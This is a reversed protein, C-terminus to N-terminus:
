SRFSIEDFGHKKLKMLDVEMERKKQEEQFSIFSYDVKEKEKKKKKDDLNKLKTKEKMLRIYERDKNSEFEKTYGAVVAKDYREPYISVYRDKTTALEGTRRNRYGIAYDYSFFTVPGTNSDKPIIRIIGEDDITYKNDPTWYGQSLKLEEIFFKQQYDPVLTCFYAFAENYSKGVYKRLVRRAWKYPYAGNVKHCDSSGHGYREKQSKTLKVVKEVTLEEDLETM